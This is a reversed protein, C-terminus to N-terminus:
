GTTLKHMLQLQYNEPVGVELFIMFLEPERMNKIVYRIGSKSVRFGEEELVRLIAAVHVGSKYLRVIRERLYLSYM